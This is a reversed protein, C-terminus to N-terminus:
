LDPTYSDSLSDDRPMMPTLKSAGQFGEFMVPSHYRPTRVPVRLQVGIIGLSVIIDTWGM